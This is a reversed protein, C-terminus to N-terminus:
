SNTDMAVVQPAVTAGPRIRQLGKVVIREGVKLGSTVVRQGDVSTGLMVERYEAKNDKSVVMVFKKNQDTGVARENITMIRSKKPQGM